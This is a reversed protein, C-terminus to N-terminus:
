IVIEKVCVGVLSHLTRSSERETRGEKKGGERKRGQPNFV